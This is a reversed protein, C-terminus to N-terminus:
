YNPTRYAKDPISLNFLGTPNSFMWECDVEVLRVAVSENEEVLIVREEGVQKGVIVQPPWHRVVDEHEWAMWTDRLGVFSNEPLADLIAKEEDEFQKCIEQFKEFLQEAQILVSM